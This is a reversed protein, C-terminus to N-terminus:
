RKSWKRLALHPPTADKTARSQNLFRASDRNCRRRGHVYCKANRVVSPYPAQGLRVMDSDRSSGAEVRRGGREGVVGQRENVAVYRGTVGELYITKKTIIWIISARRVLPVIHARPLEAGSGM